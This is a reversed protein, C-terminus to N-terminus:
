WSLHVEKQTWFSLGTHEWPTPAAWKGLCLHTPGSYTNSPTGGPRWSTIQLFARIEQLDQPTNGTSHLHRQYQSTSETDM